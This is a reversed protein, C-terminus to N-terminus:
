SPRRPRTVPCSRRMPWPAMRAWGTGACALGHVGAADVSARGATGRTAVRAHDGCVTSRPVFRADVVDDRWDPHAVDLTAELVARHDGAVEDPRLYRGVHIVAGGDPAVDAVDSQVTLYVPADLGLINPFRSCPGPRLAVDLHAMHVPVMTDAASTIREAAHGSLLAAVRHADTVAVVVADAAIATGDVLHVARVSDDHDIAAVTARTRIEGGGARVVDALADVLTSWGHHLYLVGHSAARLQRLAAGADLLSHDATYTATRLASALLARGAPDPAVDDFWEDASRGSWSAATREGGGTMARLLAGREEIHRRWHAVASVIRGDVLLGARHVRPIRGAPRVGLRRLM